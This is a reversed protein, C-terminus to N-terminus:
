LTTKQSEMRSDRDKIAPVLGVRTLRGSRTVGEIELFVKHLHTSIERSAYMHVYNRICDDIHM